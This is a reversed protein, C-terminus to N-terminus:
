TGTLAKAITEESSRCNPHRLRALMVPDREGNVIARLIAQGTTGMIDEIVVSLHNNMQKLAQQMHLIHPARHQILDGRHRVLTRLARIEADPDFTVVGPGM